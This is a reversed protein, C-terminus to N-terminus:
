SPKIRSKYHIKTQFHYQLQIILDWKSHRFNEANPSCRIKGELSWSCKYKYRIFSSLVNSEGYLLTNEFLGSVTKEYAYTRMAYDSVSFYQYMLTWSIGIKPNSYQIFQNLAIGSKWDREQKLLTYFISSRLKWKKSLEIQLRLSNNILVRYYLYKIENLKSSFPQNSVENQLMLEMNNIPFYNWRLFLTWKQHPAPIQYTMYDFHQFSVGGLVHIKKHLEAQLNLNSSFEGVGNNSLRQVQGHPAWYNKDFYHQNWGIKIGPSLEKQFLHFCAFGNPFSFSWESSFLGMKGVTTFFASAVFLKNGNFKYKAYLHSSPLWDVNWYYFSSMAGLRVKKFNMRFAAGVAEERVTYKKSIELDNRHLGSLYMSSFASLSDNKSNADFFRSSLFALFQINKGLSWLSSVGRLYGSEMTSKYPKIDLVGHKQGMSIVNGGFLFGSWIQLGEGFQIRYDGLILKHLASKKPTYSFVGSYFDFGYTKKKVFFAEHADHELLVHWQFTNNFEGESKILMSIPLNRFSTDIPWKMRTRILNRGSIFGSKKFVPVVLVSDLTSFISLYQATKANWYYLQAVEYMSFFSKVKNRYKLLANIQQPTLFLLQVLQNSDCTNLNLPFQMFYEWNEIWEPDLSELQWKEQIEILFDDFLNQKNDIVQCQASLLLLYFLGILIIKKEM